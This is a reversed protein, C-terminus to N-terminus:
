CTPRYRSHTPSIIVRRLMRWFPTRESAIVQWAIPQLSVVVDTLAAVLAAGSFDMVLCIGANEVLVQSIEHRQASWAVGRDM